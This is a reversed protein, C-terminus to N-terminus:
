MLLRLPSGYTARLNGRGRGGPALVARHALGDNLLPKFSAAVPPTLRAAIATAQAPQPLRAVINLWLEGEQSPWPLSRDSNISWNDPAFHLAAQMMLPAWLDAPMSPELGIFGPPAVGVVTLAGSRFSLKAGLASRAGGFHRQWYDYSIVAVPSAGLARNDSPTLFRGLVPELGLVAFYNSSVAQMEVVREAANAATATLTLESRDSYAALQAHGGASKQMRQFIAYSVVPIERLGNTESVLFIQEPHAVPLTRLLVANILSFIAANAGIGIALSLVVLATFGPARRLMRAAHRLDLWCSELWTFVDMSQTREQLRDLDGLAAPATGDAARREAHYRLEEAIERRKRGPWLSTRLRSGIGM